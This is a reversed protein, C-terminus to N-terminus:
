YMTEKLKNNIVHIPLLHIAQHIMLYSNIISDCDIFICTFYIFKTFLYFIYIYLNDSSSMDAGFVIVNRKMREDTFLLELHSDFGIGYSSYKYKGPDVNKTLKVSEFLCINLSFDTNLNRLSPNTLFNYYSIISITIYKNNKLSLFIIWYVTDM